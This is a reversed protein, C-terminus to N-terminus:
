FKLGGKRRALATTVGDAGVKRQILEGYGSALVASRECVNDVGTIKKVFASPTFQGPVAMLESEPYTLFSVKWEEALALIGLEEKKLDISAIAEIAEPYLAMRDLAECAAKRVGAAEKGRRCGLGLTLIKPVLVVTSPFPHVDRSVTVAIGTEFPSEVQSEQIPKGNRDCLVLGEPLEGEYPLETYFGVQGGALLTASVEKAAKMNFIACNNKKSFVDVAFRGHLDTATTIIPTAGLMQAVQATLENAGGLHGSLLSIVYTGCEDIVLIAPDKKKSVVYPAISRVAIGTAGIFIIADETEFKQGTWASTTESISGQLFKSKVALTVENNDCDLAAKIKEATNLGTLTFCILSIRKM